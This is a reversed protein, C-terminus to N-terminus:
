YAQQNTGSHSQRQHKASPKSSTRHISNEMEDQKELEKKVDEWAITEGREMAQIGERLAAMTEPDSMIELTEQLSEMTELLAKYTYYPLIAMVKKGYRTVITAELPETFRDPLSTIERQAESISLITEKM